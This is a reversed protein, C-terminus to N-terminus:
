VARAGRTSEREVTAAGSRRPHHSGGSIRGCPRGSLRNSAARGGAGFNGFRNAGLHYGGRAAEAATRVARSPRSETTPTPQRGARLTGTWFRGGADSGGRGAALAFPDKRPRWMCAKAREAAAAGDRDDLPSMPGPPMPPAPPQSISPPQAPPPPPPEEGGGGTLMFIAVIAIVVLLIVAM